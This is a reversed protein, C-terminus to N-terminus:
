GVGEYREHEVQVTWPCECTARGKTWKLQAPRPILTPRETTSPWLLTALCSAPLLLRM